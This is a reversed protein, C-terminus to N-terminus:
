AVVGVPDGAFLAPVMPVLGHDLLSNLVGGTHCPEGLRGTAM